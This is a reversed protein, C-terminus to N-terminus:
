WVYDNLIYATELSYELLVFLVYLVERLFRVLDESFNVALVGEKWGM